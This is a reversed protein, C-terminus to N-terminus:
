PKHLVSQKLDLQIVPRALLAIYLCLLVHVTRHPKRRTEYGPGAALFFFFFFFVPGPYLALERGVGM